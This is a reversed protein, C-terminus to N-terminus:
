YNPNIQPCYSAPEIERLAKLFKPVPYMIFFHYNEKMEGAAAEVTWGQYCIRYLAIVYGTRDKGRVCHVLFPGPLPGSAKEPRFWEGLMPAYDQYSVPAGTLVKMILEVQKPEPVVTENMRIGLLNLGLEKAVEQNESDEHGRATLCVLTKVGYTQALRRLDDGRPQGSRYIKGPVVVSFNLQAGRRAHNWWVYYGGLGLGSLAALIIVAALIKKRM